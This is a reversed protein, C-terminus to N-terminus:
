KWGFFSKVAMERKYSTIVYGTPALINKFDDESLNQETFVLLINKIHSAKVKKVKIKKTIAEEVHMECMGCRMGDIGLIYKNM